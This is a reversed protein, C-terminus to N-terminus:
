EEISIEYFVDFTKKSQLSMIGEKTEFNQDSSSSDAIGLWPEICVFNANPKAWIGLYPFGEYNISIVSSSKKSKLSVKRSKLDKFILADKDFIGKYLNLTKSRNMVPMTDSTVQGNEDLLYTSSTEEKEFELFYDEYAEQDNLPCQFAPHAGLSFFMAEDGTNYVRTGIIIKNQHLTYKTSFEFKFPYNKLTEESYKLFFSLSDSTEESLVIKNNNRVFGHRPLSYSKGKYYFSNNRLGGVIPFLIPSSSGWIEPNSDWMFEKGTKVSKISCLEAGSSKVSVELFENIIKYM